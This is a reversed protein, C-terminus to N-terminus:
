TVAKWVTGCGRRVDVGDQHAYGCACIFYESDPLPAVAATALPFATSDLGGHGRGREVTTVAACTPCTSGLRMLAGVPEAKLGPVDENHDRERYV